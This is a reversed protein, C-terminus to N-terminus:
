VYYQQNNKSSVQSEDPPIDDLNNPADFFNAASAPGANNDDVLYRSAKINDVDVGGGAAKGAGLIFFYYYAAIICGVVVVCMITVGAIGGDSLRKRGNSKKKPQSTPESSPQSSPQSTPHCSPKLTPASTPQVSPATSPSSTPQGSPKPTRFVLVKPETTAVLASSLTVNTANGPQLSTAGNLMAYSVLSQTFQGNATANSLNDVLRTHKGQYDLDGDTTYIITYNIIIALGEVYELLSRRTATVQTAGNVVVDQSSVGEGASDAVAEQFSIESKPDMAIETLNLSNVLITAEFESETGFTTTPPV